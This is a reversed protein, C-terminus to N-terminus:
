IFRFNVYLVRREFYLQADNTFVRVKCLSLAFAM